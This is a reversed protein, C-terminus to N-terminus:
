RLTTDALDDLKNLRAKNKNIGYAKLSMLRKKKKNTNSKVLIKDATFNSRSQQVSYAGDWHDGNHPQKHKDSITNIISTYKKIKKNQRM